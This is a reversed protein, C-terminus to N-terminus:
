LDPRPHYPHHLDTPRQITIVPQYPQTDSEDMFAALIHQAGYMPINGHPSLNMAENTETDAESMNSENEDQWQSDDEKFSSAVGGACQPLMPWDKPRQQAEETEYPTDNDEESSENRHLRKSSRHPEWGEKRCKDDQEVQLFDAPTNFSRGICKSAATVEDHHRYFTAKSVLAGGPPHKYCTCLLKQHDGPNTYPGQNGHIQLQQALSHPKKPLRGKHVPIQSTM